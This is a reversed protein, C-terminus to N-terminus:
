RRGRDLNDACRFHLPRAGRGQQQLVLSLEPLDREIDACATEFLRVRALADDIDGAQWRVTKGRRAAIGLWVSLEGKTLGGGPKNADEVAQLLDRARAAILRTADGRFGVPNRIRKGFQARNEIYSNATFLLGKLRAHERQAAAHPGPWSRLRARRSRDVM